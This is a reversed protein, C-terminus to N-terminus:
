SWKWGGSKGAERLLKCVEKDLPERALLMVKGRKMASWESETPSIRRFDTLVFEGGLGDVEWRKCRSCHRSFLRDTITLTLGHLTRVPVPVTLDSGRGDRPESELSPRPGGAFPSSNELDGSAVSTSTRCLM